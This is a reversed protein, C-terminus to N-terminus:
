CGSRRLRPAQARPRDAALASAREARDCCRRSADGRVAARGRSAAGAADGLLVEFVVMPPTAGLSGVTPPVPPAPPVCCMSRVLGSAQLALDCYRGRTHFTVDTASGGEVLEVLTGDSLSTEFANFFLEAFLDEDVGEADIARLKRLSNFEAEDFERLDAESPQELVLRKWIHDCLELDLALERQLLAFGILKGLFTFHALADASLASPRVTYASRNSGLGHQGNPTLVFLPSSTCQLEACVNTLAERYPGGYDDSAEGVFKVKFARDRRRLLLPPLTHVQIFMQEFLTLHRGSAAAGGDGGGRAEEAEWRNLSIM